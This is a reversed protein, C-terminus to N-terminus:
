LKGIGLGCDMNLIKDIRAIVDKIAMEKGHMSGLEPYYM